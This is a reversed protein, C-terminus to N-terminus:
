EYTLMYTVGIVLLVELVRLIKYNIHYQAKYM